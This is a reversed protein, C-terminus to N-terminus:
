ATMQSHMPSQMNAHSTAAGQPPQGSGVIKVHAPDDKAGSPGQPAQNPPPPGPLHPDGEGPQQPQKPKMVAGAMNALKDQQGVLGGLIKGAWGKGATPAGMQGGGLHFTEYPAMAVAAAAQGVKQVALNAEQEGISVAPGLPGAMMAAGQEAMGLAGGGVSIGKGTGISQPQKPGQGGGGPVQGGEDFHASANIAKLLALNDKTAQPNVVFEGGELGIPKNGLAAIMNDYGPSDGPIIGGSSRGLLDGL